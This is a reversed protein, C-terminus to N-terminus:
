PQHLSKALQHGADGPQNIQPSFHQLQLEIGGVTGPVLPVAFRAVKCDSAESRSPVCCMEAHCISPLNRTTLASIASCHKTGAIWTLVDICHPVKYLTSINATLVLNKTSGKFCCNSTTRNHPSTLLPKGWLIISIDSGFLHNAALNSRIIAQM